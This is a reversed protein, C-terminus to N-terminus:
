HVLSTWIFLLGVLCSKWMSTLSFVILGIFFSQSTKQFYPEFKTMWFDMVIQQNLNFKKKDLKHKRKSCTDCLLDRNFMKLLFWTSNLHMQINMDIQFWLEHTWKLLGNSYTQHINVLNWRIYM